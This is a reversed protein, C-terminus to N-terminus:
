KETKEDNLSNKGIEIIKDCNKLLSKKHTIIIITIKERM